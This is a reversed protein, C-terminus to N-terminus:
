NTLPMAEKQVTQVQSGAGHYPLLYRLAFADVPPYVGRYEPPLMAAISGM